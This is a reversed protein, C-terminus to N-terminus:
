LILLWANENLIPIISLLRSLSEDTLIIHSHSKIGIVDLSLGGFATMM